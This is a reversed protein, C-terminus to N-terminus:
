SAETETHGQQGARLAAMRGAQPPHVLRSLESVCTWSGAANPTAQSRHVRVRKCTGWRCAAARGSGHRRPKQDYGMALEAKWRGFLRAARGAGQASISPCSGASPSGKRAGGTMDQRSAPVGAAGPSTCRAPWSALVIAECRSPTGNRYLRSMFPAYKIRLGTRPCCLIVDRTCNGRSRGPVSWGNPEAARAPGDFAGFVCCFVSSAEEAKVAHAAELLTGM